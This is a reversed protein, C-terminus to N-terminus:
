DDSQLYHGGVVGAGIGLGALFYGAVIRGVEKPDGGLALYLAVLFPAVIVFGVVYCAICFWDASFDRKLVPRTQHGGLGALAALVLLGGINM